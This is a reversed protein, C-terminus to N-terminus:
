NNARETRPYHKAVIQGQRTLTVEDATVVSLNALLEAYNEWYGARALFDGKLKAGSIEEPSLRLSKESEPDVLRLVNGIRLMDEVPGYIPGKTEVLGKMRAYVDRWFPVNARVLSDNKLEPLLQIAQVTKHATNPDFARYDTMADIITIPNTRMDSADALRPNLQVIDAGIELLDDPTRLLLQSRQVTEAMWDPCQAYFARPAAISLNRAMNMIKRVAEVNEGSEHIQDLIYFMNNWRSQDIDHEPDFTAVDQADALAQTYQEVQRSM